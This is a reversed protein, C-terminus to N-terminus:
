RGAEGDALRYIRETERWPAAFCGCTEAQWWRELEEDYERDTEPSTERRVVIMVLSTGSRYINLSAVGDQRLNEEIAAPIGNHLTEYKDVRDPRLEATYVLTRLGGVTVDATEKKGM